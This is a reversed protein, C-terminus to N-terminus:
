EGPAPVTVATSPGQSQLIAAGGGAGLLGLLAAVIYPLWRAILSDRRAERSTAAALQADLKAGIVALDNRIDKVDKQIEKIDDEIRTM